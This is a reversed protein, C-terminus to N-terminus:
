IISLINTSLYQVTIRRTGIIMVIVALNDLNNHPTKGSPDAGESLSCHTCCGVADRYKCGLEVDENIDCHVINGCRWFLPFKDFAGHAMPWPWDEEGEREARM